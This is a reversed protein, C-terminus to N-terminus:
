TRVTGAAEEPEPPPPVVDGERSDQSRATRRELADLGLKRLDEDSARGVYAMFRAVDNDFEARVGAPFGAFFEEARKVNDLASRYDGLDSVDAFNPVGDALHDLLGTKDFKKVIQNIDCEDKMSQKTRSPGSVVTKGYPVGYSSM